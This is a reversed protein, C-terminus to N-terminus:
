GDLIYKLVQRPTKRLKKKKLRKDIMILSIKPDSLHLAKNFVDLLRNERSTQRSHKTMNRRYLKHWSESGDESYYAIPLPFKRAVECGHKLLKHMSPNM